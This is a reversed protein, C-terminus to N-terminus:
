EEVRAARWQAKIEEAQVLFQQYWEQSARIDVYPAPLWRPRCGHRHVKIRHAGHGRSVKEEVTIDSIECWRYTRRGLPRWAHIGEADVIVKGLVVNLALPSFLLWSAGFADWFGSFHGLLIRTVSVFGWSLFILSFVIGRM